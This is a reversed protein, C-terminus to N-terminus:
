IVAAAEEPTKRLEASNRRPRSYWWLLLGSIFLLPTVLGAVASLVRFPLGGWEDYHLGAMAQTFRNSASREAFRDVGLVHANASSVYVVNNGLSRFDGPRWMRVQVTGTGEPLRIERVSGDPVATRAAAMIDGLGAAQSSDGGHPARAPRVDEPPPAVATLMGRMTQPFCLWLGTFAELMLLLMALVGLARHLQRPTARSWRLQVQFAARLSPKTLAWVLLGTLGSALMAVGFFGAWVRGSKGALLNHHLDVTWDMWALSVSGLIRGSCADYILHRYIAPQDTAMRFRYRTDSGYPGYIRNIESHAYSAIDRAAANWDPSSQCTQVKPAAPSLLTAIQPRLGVVGGTFGMLCIFVGGILGLWLHAWRTITRLRM